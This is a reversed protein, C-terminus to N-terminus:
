ISHKKKKSDYMALDARRILDDPVEGANAMAIGASININIDKGAMTSTFRKESFNKAFKETREHAMEESLGELIVVFEDGGYRAIFDNKRFSEILTRAVVKLVKDGAVHGFTDNISKFNDVDFLVVLLTEGGSNFLELTDKLREDFSSRNHLGTLGDKKAAKRFHEAKKFMKHADKEANVIQYKLKNISGKTRKSRKVEDKKRKAVLRKINSLKAVVANKIESIRAHIDFSNVISGVEKNIKIEFHEIERLRDNGGFESSLMNELEKVHKLLMLFTKNVYVFDESIKGKLGKVFSLFATTPEDLEAEAMESHCRINIGDAKEKLEKTIPYFGDLLPLMIRKINRCAKLLRENIENIKETDSEDPGAKAEETFLRSRLKSVTEQIRDLPLVKESNLMEKIIQREEAFEAHMDVVAGFINIVKLLCEKEDSYVREAELYERKIRDLEPRLDEM